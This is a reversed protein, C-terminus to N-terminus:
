RTQAFVRTYIYDLYVARKVGGIGGTKRLRFFPVACNAETSPSTSADFSWSTYYKSGVTNVDYIEGTVTGAGDFTFRARFWGAFSPAAGVNTYVNTSGGSSTEAAQNANGQSMWFTAGSALPGANTYLFVNAPLPGVFNKALGFEIDIPNTADTPDYYFQFETYGQTSGLPYNGYTNAAICCIDGSNLVTMKAVGPHKAFEPYSENPNFEIVASGTAGAWHTAQQPAPINSTYSSTVNEYYGLFDNCTEHGVTPYSLGLGTRAGAATTTGTGNNAVSLPTSVETKLSGVTIIWPGVSQNHTNHTIQVQLTTGSYSNVYGYAETEGSARSSLMVPMGAVFAKGAQITFSKLGVTPTIGSSSTARLKQEGDFFLDYLFKGLNKRVGSGAFDSANYTHGNLTFPFPM